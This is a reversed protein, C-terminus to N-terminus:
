RFFILILIIVTVDVIIIIVINVTTVINVITVIITITVIFVSADATFGFTLDTSRVCDKSYKFVNLVKCHNKSQSPHKPPAQFTRM